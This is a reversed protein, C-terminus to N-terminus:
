LDDSEKRGNRVKFRSTFVVRLNKEKKTEGDRERERGREERGREGGEKTGRKYREM